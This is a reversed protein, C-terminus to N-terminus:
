SAWLSRSGLGSTKEPEGARFEPMPRRSARTATAVLSFLPAALSNRYITQVFGEQEIGNWVMKCIFTM